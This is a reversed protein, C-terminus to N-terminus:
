KKDLPKNLSKIPQKPFIRENGKVVVDAGEVLGQAQIATKEKTYGVIKVPIMAATGDSDIFVVNQGFRKIVADRPVTLAEQKKDRPLNVTVEMGDFLFQNNQLKAKFKVPFTRTRKDGKPIAAFLKTDIQMGKLDIKYTEDKNLKYVYSAPLNFVMQIDQTNVITAIVKGSSVWEGKEISKEVVVGDFPAKILKKTKTVELEELTAKVANLNSIAIQYKFYSDDYIKQSIAKQKLLEKYRQYDKKSNELNLKAAELNAKKSRIQADLLEKDVKVLIEGKKVKQGTEFNVDQVSGNTQSAVQSTKSFSLTGIFPELPNVIQKTVKATNVLSPVKENAFTVGAALFLLLSSKAINNIMVTM